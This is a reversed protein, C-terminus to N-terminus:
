KRIGKVNEDIVDLVIQEFEPVFEDIINDTTRWGHASAWNVRQERVMLFPAYTVETYVEATGKEPEINDRWSKNFQQSNNIGGITGDKRKWRSGYGREYWRNDGRTGPPRNWAGEPPYDALIEKLRKAGRKLAEERGNLVERLIDAIVQKIPPNISAKM